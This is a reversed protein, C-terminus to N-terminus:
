SAKPMVLQKVCYLLFSFYKLSFKLNNGCPEMFLISRLKKPVLMSCGHKVM